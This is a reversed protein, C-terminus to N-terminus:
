SASLRRFDFSTESPRSHREYSAVDILSVSARDKSPVEQTCVELVKIPGACLPPDKAAYVTIKLPDNQVPLIIM